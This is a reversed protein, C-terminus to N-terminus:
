AAESFLIFLFKKQKGKERKASFSYNVKGNMFFDNFSNKKKKSDKEIESEDFSYAQWVFAILICCIFIMKISTANM